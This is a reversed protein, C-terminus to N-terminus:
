KVIETSLKDKQMQEESIATLLKPILLKEEEFASAEQDIRTRLEEILM